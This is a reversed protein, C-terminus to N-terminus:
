QETSKPTGVVPYVPTVEKPYFMDGNKVDVYIFTNSGLAIFALGDKKVAFRFVYRGGTEHLTVIGSKETWTGMGVYSSLPGAYYQYTGDKELTLSFDGGAGPKEWVYTKGDIENLQKDEKKGKCSCFCLSLTSLILVIALKKKM